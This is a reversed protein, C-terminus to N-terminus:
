RMQQQQAALEEQTDTHTQAYKDTCIHKHKCTQSRIHLTKSPSTQRGNTINKEMGSKCRQNGEGDRKTYDHKQRVCVCM